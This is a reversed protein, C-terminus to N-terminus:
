GEANDKEPPVIVNGTVKMVRPWFPTSFPDEIYATIKSANM